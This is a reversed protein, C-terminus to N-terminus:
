RHQVKGGGGGVLQKEQAGAESVHLEQLLFILAESWAM